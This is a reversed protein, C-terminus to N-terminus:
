TPLNHSCWENGCHRPVHSSRHKIVDANALEVFSSFPPIRGVLGGTPHNVQSMPVCLSNSVVHDLVKALEVFRALLSAPFHDM